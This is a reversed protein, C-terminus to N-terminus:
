LRFARGLPQKPAQQDDIPGRVSRENPARADAVSWLPWEWRIRRWWGPRSWEEVREVGARRSGASGPGAPERISRENRQDGGTPWVSSWSATRAPERISRENGQDVATRCVASWVSDAGARPNFTWEQEAAANRTGTVHPLRGVSGPAM